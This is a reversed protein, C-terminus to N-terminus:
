LDLVLRKGKARSCCILMSQQSAKEDDSFYQDRHDAEGELITTECTGCVGERCLCEVRVAKNNEIVQLITMEQPVVFERGSRALDLRTGESSLHLHIRNAQRHQKLEDHFACNEPSPSCYHLQWQAQASELEPIQSLFPTIGIGGAILLHKQAQPELAFLNNPTSITLTDGPKVQQHLYRSGGKSNEELRVAIQWTRTDLPSSMLSYANSYLNEGDHMQVIIHSGGQFAPLPDGSAATLTFRKVHATITEIQSVQVERMQYESM